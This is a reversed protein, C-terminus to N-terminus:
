STMWSFPIDFGLSIWLFARWKTSSGGLLAKSRGQLLREQWWGNANRELCLSGKRCCLLSEFTPYECCSLPSFRRTEAGSKWWRLSHTLQSPKRSCGVCSPSSWIGSVFRTTQCFAAIMEFWSIYTPLWKQCWLNQFILPLFFSLFGLSSYWISNFYM